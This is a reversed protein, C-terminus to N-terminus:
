KKKGAAAPAETGGAQLEAVQNALADREATLATREVVLADREATLTERESLMGSLQTRLENREALLVDIDKHLNDSHVHVPDASCHARVFPHDAISADVGTHTGVGFDLRDGAPTTYAFKEKVHITVM